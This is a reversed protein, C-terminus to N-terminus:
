VGGLLINKDKKAYNEIECQKRFEYYNKKELQHLLIVSYKHTMTTQNSTTNLDM